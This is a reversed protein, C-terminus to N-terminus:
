FNFKRPIKQIKNNKDKTYEFDRLTANNYFDELKLNKLINKLVLIIYNINKRYKERIIIDKNNKSVIFKLEKNKNFLEINKKWLINKENYKWNNYFTEITYYNFIILNKKYKDNKFYNLRIKRKYEEYKKIDKNYLNIEFIENKYLKFYNDKKVYEKIKNPNKLIKFWKDTFFIKDKKLENLLSNYKSFTELLMNDNIYTVLELYKKSIQLNYFTLIEIYEDKNSETLIKKNFFLNFDYEDEFSQDLEPNFVILEEYKKIKNKKKYNKLSKILIQNLKKTKKDELKSIEKNIQNINFKYIKLWKKLQDISIKEKKTFLNIKKTIIEKLKKRNEKKELFLSQEKSFLLYNKDNKLKINKNLENINKSLPHNNDIKIVSISM